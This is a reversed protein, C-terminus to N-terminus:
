IEGGLDFGGGFFFFVSLALFGQVKKTVEFGVCEVLSCFFLTRLGM